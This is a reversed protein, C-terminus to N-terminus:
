AAVHVRYTGRVQFAVQWGGPVQTLAVANVGDGTVRPRATGPYWVLATGAASTSGALDLPGDCASMRQTLRGPVARPYARWTCSWEPVVGLDHDGPCGNRQFHILVPAPTGGPHGISHPDGCAQRWQWWADGATLLADEKAAYRELAARHAPPDSFWGYEGIFLPTGYSTAQSQFFDFFTELPIPVISDGYNHPAFVIDTDTTFGPAVASALVTPEFFAIHPMGHGAREGARIAAIARGYFTALRVLFDPRSGHNPENLLDFGAVAPERAFARGLVQWVDVLHTMIQERDAYFSDWAAIVAPSDERSAGSCTSAGDTITAWRPAGDWGIAPSRGPPCTAGPPTAIYKGWADQHMDVISYIGRRAADRVTRKVRALYARDIHGPRPELSSWSVLLRVVDFGHAAMQDWDAGTVPVVPPLQPDDQYYDGLSNVDVGRLTVERGGADVIAPRDGTAVHLALLAPAGRGGGGGGGGGGGAAAAPAVLTTALVAVIATLVARHRTV